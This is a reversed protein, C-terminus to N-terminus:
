KIACNCVTYVMCYLTRCPSDGPAAPHGRYRPVETREYYRVCCVMWNFPRFRPEDVCLRSNEHKERTLYMALDLPSLCRSVMAGWSFPHM